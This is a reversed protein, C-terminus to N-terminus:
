EHVCVVFIYIKHFNLHHFNHFNYLLPTNQIIEIFCYFFDLILSIYLLIIIIIFILLKTTNYDNYFEDYFYLVM